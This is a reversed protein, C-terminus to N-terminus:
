RPLLPPPACSRSRRIMHHPMAERHPSRRTPNHLTTCLTQHYILADLLLWDTASLGGVAEIPFLRPSVALFALLAALRVAFRVMSSTDIVGNRRLITKKELPPDCQPTQPLNINIPVDTYTQVARNATGGYEIRIGIRMTEM